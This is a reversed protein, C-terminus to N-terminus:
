RKIMLHSRRSSNDEAIITLMYTGEALHQAQIETNIEGFVSKARGRFVESGYLDHVIVEYSGEVVVEMSVSIKERFPNPFTVITESAEEDPVNNESMRLAFPEAETSYANICAIGDLDFGEAEPGFDEPNSTDVIKVYNIDPLGTTAIDIRTDKCAQGAFFFDVGDQSLYVDATEPYDSCPLGTDRYSTEVVMFDDGPQDMVTANLRIVISGGFGLSVFNFGDEQEPMGLANEPNSKRPPIPKGNNKKGQDFAILEDGFCSNDIDCIEGESDERKQREVGDENLWRIVTTNPTGPVTETFFFSDSDGAAYIIGSQDTDVVHWTAMVQFPNRNRVRWRRFLDPNNSCMSRLLLNRVECPLGSSEATAENSASTHDLWRLKVTNPRDTQTPSVFYNVGPTLTVSDSVDSGVLFWFADVDFKNPNNVEWRRESDPNDSCAAALELPEVVVAHMTMKLVREPESPVNTLLMLDRTYTGPEVETADFTVTVDISEGEGLVGQGPDLTLWRIGSYILEVEDIQAYWDWDGTNPNYYHWRLMISPAGLIYSDLEVSVFEGPVGRFTGHDENWSIVTTWSSGGDTSIDLDLFDRNLYNQYNVYYQLVIGEKKAVDIVPTILETDYEVVGADGSNAGAAQGEGGTFNDSTIDWVVGNGANDIVSWGEPPFTGEFGEYLLQEGEVFTVAGVPVRTRSGEEDMRIKELEAETLVDTSRRAFVGPEPAKSYGAFGFRLNAEGTNTITLTHEQTSGVFVTSEISEPSVELAPPNIVELTVPINVASNDPDNNFVIINENYVGKELFTADFTVEIEVTEGAAVNGFEPNTSLFPVPAEGDWINFDDMDMTPGAVEMASLIVVEEIDGAFGQGSFVLQQDVFIDFFGTARESQLKLNFYGEPLAPAITEFITGGSGDDVLAMVSGDPNVQLRTVVLQATASQPILQWTAGTGDVQIDASFSSIPESGIGVNPSAAASTTVGSSEGRFHQNGSDPNEQEVTWNGFLGFWGDQGSIDGLDFSEFDTGYVPMISSRDPLVGRIDVATKGSFLEDGGELRGTSKVSLPREQKDKRVSVVQANKFFGGLNYRLISEGNNTISLTQTSSFGAVLEEELSAPEVVIEAPELVDMISLVSAVPANSNVLIGGFYQGPDVKSADFTVNVPYSEGVPITGVAPDVVLWTTADSLIEVDDIQAYFDWDGTNPNYYRWRLQMTSAGALYDDLEVVVFEGPLDFATGHSENWSLVTTWSAGNDTTIDLDLFDGNLYNLYNANYQVVVGTRGGINVVPTILETDYEVGENADSNVSPAEGSGSWNEM